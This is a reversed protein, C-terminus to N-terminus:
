PLQLLSDLQQRFLPSDNLNNHRGKKITVLHVGANEKVLKLSQSYPIVEDRTGHFLTVPTELKKFYTYNPFHYKAMWSVPYIFAYHDMLAEISYYPTELILRKCDKVSALQSAVGTGLSKGYIIISDKSFRARAMQYLLAADDYITQETLKGTTKGFGPYDMMWVEYNNKTFNIAYSAYREINKRNGHFYLVVGKCVPDPITFQVISLNKENSVPLNIEKFPIQFNFNHEVSLKQPHFLIKEQFFYLVIGCVLYVSVIILLGIKIKKATSKQM